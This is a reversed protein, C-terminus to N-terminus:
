FEIPKVTLILFLTSTSQPLTLTGVLTPTNEALGIRTMNLGIQEYSAIVPRMEDGVKISSGSRIPIRAGFRFAHAQIGNVGKATLMGRLGSISWEAFTQPDTMASPGFMNSVTKYELNGANSMRGLITDSLRYNSFTFASRLSKVLPALNSPINDKGVAEDSGVILQLTVDYSAELQLKQEVQGFTNTGFFLFAAALTLLSSFKFVRNM